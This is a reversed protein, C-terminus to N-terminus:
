ETDHDEGEKRAQNQKERAIRKREAIERDIDEQTLPHALVKAITGANPPPPAELEPFLPATELYAPANMEDVVSPHLMRGIRCACREYKGDCVRAGMNDCNPCRSPKDPQLPPFQADFLDRLAPVSTWKRMEDVCVSQIWQAQMLPTWTLGGPANYGVCWVMLKDTVYEVASDRRPFGDILMFREAISHAVSRDWKESINYPPM